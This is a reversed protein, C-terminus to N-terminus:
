VFVNRIEIEEENIFEQEAVPLNSFVKLKENAATLIDGLIGKGDSSRKHQNYLGANIVKAYALLGSITESIKSADALSNNSALSTKADAISSNLAKVIVNKALSLKRNKLGILYFFGNTNHQKLYKTFQSELEGLTTLLDTKCSLSITRNSLLNAKPIHPKLDAFLSHGPRPQKVIAKYMVLDQQSEVDLSMNDSSLAHLHPKAKALEQRDMRITALAFNAEQCVSDAHNQTQETLPTLVNIAFDRTTGMRLNFVNDRVTKILKVGTGTERLKAYFLNANGVTRMHYHYLTSTDDLVAFNTMLSPLLSSALEDNEKSPNNVAMRFIDNCLNPYVALTAVVSVRETYLHGPFAIKQLLLNFHNPYDQYLTIIQPIAIHHFNFQIFEVNDLFWFILAPATSLLNKIEFSNIKLMQKRIDDYEFLAFLTEQKLLHRAVSWIKMRFRQNRIAKTFIKHNGLAQEAFISLLAPTDQAQFWSPPFAGNNKYAFYGEAILHCNLSFPNISFNQASLNNLDMGFGDPYKCYNLLALAFGKTMESTYLNRIYAFFEYYLHRLQIKRDNFKCFEEIKVLTDHSLMFSSRDSTTHLKIDEQCKTIVENLLKQGFNEVPDSQNKM